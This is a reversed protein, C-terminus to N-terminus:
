EACSMRSVVYPGHGNLRESPWGGEVPTDAKLLCSTDEVGNTELEWACNDLKWAVWSIGNEDLWDLWMDAETACVPTGKVGGDANTAGWETVMLPLGAALARKARDLQNRGHSCSYFHVAYMVAEDEVTAGIAADPNQDYVPTGLVTINKYGDPDSGRIAGLVAEHYPKLVTSWNVNLPENFTEFIVNPLHGYRASIDSFFEIAETQYDDANHSHFDVIVYVGAQEANNIITEVERLMAIKGGSVYGGDVDVGMAARIVTLGWNDRMWELAKQSLAYGDNEWNLWMSSVGRLQVPQGSEDVLQTGSLSLHGHRAVPSGAPAGSPLDSTGSDGAAGEPGPSLPTPPECRVQVSPRGGSGTSIPRLSSTDDCSPLFPLFTLPLALFALQRM